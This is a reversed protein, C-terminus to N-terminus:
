SPHMDTASYVFDQIRAPCSLPLFIPDSIHLLIYIIIIIWSNTMALHEVGMNLNGWTSVVWTRLHLEWQRFLM